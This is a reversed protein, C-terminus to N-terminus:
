ILVNTEAVDFCTQRKVKVKGKIDSREIIERYKYFLIVNFTVNIVLKIRLSRKELFALM